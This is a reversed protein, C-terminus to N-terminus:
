QQPVNSTLSLLLAASAGAMALARLGSLPEAGVVADNRVGLTAGPLGTNGGLVTCVCLVCFEATQLTVAPGPCLRLKPLPRVHPSPVM